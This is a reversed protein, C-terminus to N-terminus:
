IEPEQELSEWEQLGLQSRLAALRDSKIESFTLSYSGKGAMSPHDEDYLASPALSLTSTQSALAAFSAASEHYRFSM